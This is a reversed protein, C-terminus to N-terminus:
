MKYDKSAAEARGEARQRVQMERNQISSHSFAFLFPNRNTDSELANIAKLPPTSLETAACRIRCCPKEQMPAVMRSRGESAPQPEAFSISSARDTASRNPM